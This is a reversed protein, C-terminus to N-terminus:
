EKKFFELCMSTLFDRKIKILEGTQKIFLNLHGENFDIMFQEDFDEIIHIDGSINNEFKFVHSDEFEILNKSINFIKSLNDIKEKNLFGTTPISDLNIQIKLNNPKALNIYAQMLKRFYNKDITYIQTKTYKLGNENVWNPSLVNLLIEKPYGKRKFYFPIVRVNSLESKKTVDFNFLSLEFKDKKDLNKNQLVWEVMERECSEVIRDYAIAASAITAGATVVAAAATGINSQAKLCVCNSLIIITLLIKKM